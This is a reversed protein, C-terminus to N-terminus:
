NGLIRPWNSLATYTVNDATSVILKVVSPTPLNLRAALAEWGVWTAIAAGAKLASSTAQAIASGTVTVVALVAGSAGVINVSSSATALTKANAPVEFCQQSNGAIRYIDHNGEAILWLENSYTKAYGRLSDSEIDNICAGANAYGYVTQGYIRETVGITALAVFGLWFLWRFFVAHGKPTNAWRSFAKIKNMTGKRGTSSQSDRDRVPAPGNRNMWLRSLFKRKNAM